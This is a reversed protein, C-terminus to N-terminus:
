RQPQEAVPLPWAALQEAHRRDALVPQRSQQAAGGAPVRAVQARLEGEAVVLGGQDAGEADLGDAGGPAPPHVLQVWAAEAPVPVASGSGKPSVVECGEPPGSADSGM